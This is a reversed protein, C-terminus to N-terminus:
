SPQAEQSTPHGPTQGSSSASSEIPRYLEVRDGNRVTQKLPKVAGFIGVKLDELQYEPFDDLIGSIAIAEEITDGQNVQVDKIRQKERIAFVVEVVVSEPDNFEALLNQFAADSLEGIPLDGKGIQQGIQKDLEALRSQITSLQAELETVQLRKSQAELLMERLTM